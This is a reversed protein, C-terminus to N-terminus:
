DVDYQKYHQILVMMEHGGVTAQPVTLCRCSHTRCTRQRCSTCSNQSRALHFRAVQSINTAKYINTARHISYNCM